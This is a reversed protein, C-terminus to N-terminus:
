WVKHVSVGSCFSTALLFCLCMISVAQERKNNAETGLLNQPSAIRVATLKILVM